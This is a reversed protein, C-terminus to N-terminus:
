CLDDHGFLAAGVLSGNNANCFRKALQEPFPPFLTRTPEKRYMNSIDERFFHTSLKMKKMNQRLVASTKAGHINPGLYIRAVTM